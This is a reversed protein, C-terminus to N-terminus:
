PLMGPAGTRRVWLKVYRGYSGRRLRGLADLVICFIVVVPVVVLLVISIKRHDATLDPMCYVSGNAPVLTYAPLCSCNQLSLVFHEGM